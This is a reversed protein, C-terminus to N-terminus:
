LRNDTDFSALLKEIDESSTEEQEKIETNLIHQPISQLLEIFSYQLKLLHQTYLQKRANEDLTDNTLGAYTSADLMMNLVQKKRM